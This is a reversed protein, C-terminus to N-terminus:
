SAAIVKVPMGVSAFKYTWSAVSPLQRVCGHSAPYPPVVLFEHFAIGGVFPLAYPAMRPVAGVVVKQDQRLRPLERAADADVGERDLRRDRSRGQREQDSSRGPAQPPDRSAQGHRRPDVPSPRMAFALRTKTPPDLVGTRSLREWKQFALIANATAPGLRGDDDGRVMYGLAILRQQTAKVAPDPAKLRPPSPKPVPGNPTTLLRLTIPGGTPIGPFLGASSSGGILLLVKKTGQVGTLSHVLEALRALMSGSNRRGKAFARTLDVTALRHAVAVRRLRTGAPVYTRFGHHREARTPGAILERVADRATQASRSVPRLQEGQVFYVAVHSRASAAAPRGMAGVTLLAASATGVALVAVLRRNEM